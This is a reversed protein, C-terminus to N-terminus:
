KIVKNIKNLISFLIVLSFFILFILYLSFLLSICFFDFAYFVRNLENDAYDHAGYNIAVVDGAKIAAEAEPEAGDEAYAATAMVSVLMLAALALSLYKKITMKM